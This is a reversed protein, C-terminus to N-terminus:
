RVQVHAEQWGPRAEKITIGIERLHAGSLAQMVDGHEIGNEEVPRDTVGILTGVRSGESWADPSPKNSSEAVLLVVRALAVMQDDGSLADTNLQFDDWFIDEPAPVNTHKTPTLARQLTRRSGNSGNWSLALLCALLSKQQEADTGKSSSFFRSDGQALQETSADCLWIIEYVPPVNEANKMVALRKYNGETRRFHSYMRMACFAIETTTM